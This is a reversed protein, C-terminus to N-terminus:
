SLFLQFIVLFVIRQTPKACRIINSMQCNVQENVRLETDFELVPAYFPVLLGDNNITTFESLPTGNNNEFGANFIQSNVQIAFALGFLLTITRKM